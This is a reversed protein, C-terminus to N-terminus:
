RTLYMLLQWVGFIFTYNVRCQAWVLVNLGILMSFLVPVFFLGYIFLLADWSKIQQRTGELTGPLLQCLSVLATAIFLASCYVGAAFAPIAVGVLLGSRFTNFHHTKTRRGERLRNMAKKSDGRVLQLILLAGPNLSVPFTCFARAYLEQMERMM